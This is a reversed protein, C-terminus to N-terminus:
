RHDTQVRRNSAQLALTIPASLALFIPAVMGILIHQVTHVTFIEDHADVGSVLRDGPAARRLLVLRNEGGALGAGQDGPATSVVPVMRDTVVIVITPIVPFTAQTVVELPTMSTCGHMYQSPPRDPGM